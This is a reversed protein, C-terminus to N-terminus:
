FSCSVRFEKKSDLTIEFMIHDLVNRHRTADVLRFSNLSSVGAVANEERVSKCCTGNQPFKALYMPTAHHM